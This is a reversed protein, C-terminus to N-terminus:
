LDKRPNGKLPLNSETWWNLSRLIRRVDTKPFGIYRMHVECDVWWNAVLSPNAPLALLLSMILWLDEDYMLPLGSGKWWDLLHTQGFFSALDMARNSYRLPLGSDKWWQLTDVTSAYDMMTASYKLELGSDKWWQLIQHPKIGPASDLAAGDMAMRTYELELGSDKWWQLIHIQGNLSAGNIALETYQMQPGRNDKWWQLLEVQGACSATDMCKVRIGGHLMIMDRVRSMRLVVAVRFGQDPPLRLVVQEILEYPVPPMKRAYSIRGRGHRAKVKIAWLQSRTTEFPDRVPVANAAVDM